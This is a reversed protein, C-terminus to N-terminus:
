KKKKKLAKERKIYWIKEVMVAWEYLRNNSEVLRDVIYKLRKLKENKNADDWGEPNDADGIYWEDDIDVLPLLDRTRKTYKM